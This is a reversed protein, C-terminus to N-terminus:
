PRALLTLRSSRRALASALGLPSAALLAVPNRLSMARAARQSGRSQLSRRAGKIWSNPVPADRRSEVFFGTEDLLRMLAARPFLWLHEPIEYGEWSPGFARHDWGGTVPITLFLAGRGGLIRRTEALLARPDPVHELVHRMIVVDFGRDSLGADMLTGEVVRVGRRRALKAAEPSREVGTVEAGFRERILALFSGTGCGLELVRAGPRLFPTLSRMETRWALRRLAGASGTDPSHEEYYAAGYADDLEAETPMPDLRETGCGACRLVTFERGAPDHDPPRRFLTRADVEACVACAASM